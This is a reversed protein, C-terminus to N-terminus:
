AAHPNQVAKCAQEHSNVVFLPFYGDLGNRASFLSLKGAYMTFVKINQSFMPPMLLCPPACISRENRQQGVASAAKRSACLLSRAQYSVKSTKFDELM